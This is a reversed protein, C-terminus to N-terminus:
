KVKQKFQESAEILGQAIEQRLGLHTNCHPCVDALKKDLVEAMLAVLGDISGGDVSIETKDTAKGALLLEHQCIRVWDGVTAKIKKEKLDKRFAIHVQRIIAKQDRIFKLDDKRSEKAALKAYELDREQVRKVWNYKKSWDAVAARGCKMKRATATITRPPGLGYYCEFADVQIKGEHKCPPINKKQPNKPKEPVQEDSSMIGLKVSPAKLNM